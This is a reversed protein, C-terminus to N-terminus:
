GGYQCSVASYSEFGRARIAGSDADIQWNAASGGVHDPAPCREELIMQISWVRSGNRNPDWIAHYQSLGPKMGNSAAIRTLVAVHLTGESRQLFRSAM